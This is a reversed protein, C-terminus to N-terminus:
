DTMRDWAHRVATKFREWTGAQRGEWDRQLDPEVEDWARGRYRSDSRMSDGWRYAPEYDEWLGGSPAYTTDFHARWRDTDVDRGPDREADSRERDLELSEQVPMEGQHAYVRVGGTRVLRGGVQLPEKVAPSAREDGTASDGLSSAPPMLSTGEQWGSARWESAREEIDVAGAAELASRAAEAQEEADVEVKVVAGGRRVAEAYPGVEREDNGFLDSFFNRVHAMVGAEERAEPRAATREGELEDTVYVSDAFGSDRLQQAAQRAAAYRDFVGVVTQRM